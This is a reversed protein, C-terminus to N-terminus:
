DIKEQVSGQPMRWSYFKFLAVWLHTVWLMSALIAFVLKFLWCCALWRPMIHDAHGGLYFRGLAWTLYPGFGARVITFYVTFFPSISLFLQKAKQSSDQAMKSLTWINQVPSTIEGGAICCMVSIAGHQIFYRCSIMYSLTGIHHIIFLYDDPATFALNLLDVIFYAMSYEMIKNQLPTNPADLVWEKSFIEYCCLAAVATGHTLSMGCSAAEYRSRGKWLKSFLFFYGYFYVATFLCISGFLVLNDTIIAMDM